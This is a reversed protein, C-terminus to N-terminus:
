GRETFDLFSGLRAGTAAIASRSAPDVLGALEGAHDYAAGGAGYNSIAPHLYIESLGDPLRAIV